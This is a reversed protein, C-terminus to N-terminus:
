KKCQENIIKKFKEASTDNFGSIEEDGIITYPVGKAEKGNAKLYNELIAANDKNDFVEFAYIICQDKFTDEMSKFFRIEEECHPCGNGYFLYINLKDDTNREKNFETPFNMYSQAITTEGTNAPITTKYGAFIVVFLVLIATIIIFITKQKM